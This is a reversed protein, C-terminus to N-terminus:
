IKIRSLAFENEKLDYKSEETWQKLVNNYKEALVSNRVNEVVDKYETKGEIRVVHYGFDSEVIGTDGVEHELAWKVFNELESTQASAFNLELLGENQEVSGDGSLELAMEAMDDGKNVRELAAKAKDYEKKKDEEALSIGTKPNTTLFLIHRASTKDFIDKNEKYKNELDEETIAIEKQEETVLKFILRLDKLIVKYEEINIGYTEKFLDEAAMIKTDTNKAAQNFRAMDSLLSTISNDIEKMDKDNLFLGEEKAKLLQIKFEKCSDLARQKAVERADVGEVKSDWFAQRSAEDNLQADEEMQIKVKELFFKYEENTVKEGAVTAIYSTAYSYWISCGLALVVVLIGIVSIIAKMKGNIKKRQKM